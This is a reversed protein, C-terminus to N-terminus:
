DGAPLNSFEHREQGYNHIFRVKEEDFIELMGARNTVSPVFTWVESSPMRGFPRHVITGARCTRGTVSFSRPRM